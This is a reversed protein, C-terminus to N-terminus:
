ELYNELKISHPFKEKEYFMNNEDNKGINHVCVEEEDNISNPLSNCMYDEVNFLLNDYSYDLPIAPLNNDIFEIAPLLDEIKLNNKEYNEM